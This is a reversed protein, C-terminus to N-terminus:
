AISPRESPPKATSERVILEVEFEEQKVVPEGCQIQELLSKASLSGIKVADSHVTTLSPSSLTALDWDGFGTISVSQPVSIGLARCEAIASAAIPDNNCILATPANTQSLLHRTAMRVSETDYPTAVVAEPRLAIGHRALGERIGSLRVAALQQTEAPGPLVGFRVHGLSVLHDTVRWMAHRNDYGVTPNVCERDIAWMLVYPLKLRRVMTLLDPHHSTGILALGDVGREILARVISLELDRSGRHCTLLGTYDFQLFERELTDVARAYLENM